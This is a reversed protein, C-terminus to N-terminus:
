ECRPAGRPVRGVHMSLMHIFLKSETQTLTLDFDRRDISFRTHGLPEGNQRRMPAAGFIDRKLASPRTRRARGSRRDM